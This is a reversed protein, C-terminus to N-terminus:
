EATVVTPQQRQRRAHLDRVFSHLLGCSHPSPRHISEAYAMAEDFNQGPKKYNELYNRFRELNCQRTLEPHFQTAVIPKNKVRIAQYKCAESSALHILDDCLETASDNHGLQADFSKPLDGFLPDDEAEDTLEIQYTGLQAMQEDRALKGGTAQVIGQFGFCSAFTPIGRVLIERMLDLYAQHWSFGGEVLSFAGSGGIMIADMGRPHYDSLDDVAVNFTTFQDITLECRNAFARLEHDAMPDDASRAQILLIRLPQTMATPGPYHEPTPFVCFDADTKGDRVM